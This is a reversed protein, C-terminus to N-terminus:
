CAIARVHGAAAYDLIKRDSTVIALDMKRATAMLLRDAPDRHFGGPLTAADIAIDGDLAAERIAAMAMLNTFWTKPDPLFQM